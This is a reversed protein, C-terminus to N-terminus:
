ATRGLLDDPAGTEPTGAIDAAVDDRQVAALARELLLTESPTPVSRMDTVFSAMIESDSRGRVRDRYRLGSENSPSNWELHVAHPFRTRLSRMADVPRVADTLM